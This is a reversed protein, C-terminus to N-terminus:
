KASSVRKGRPKSRVYTILAPGPGNKCQAAVNGRAWLNVKDELHFEPFRLDMAELNEWTAEWVPTDKWKILVETSSTDTQNQKRVELLSEPEATFVMEPSIQPPIEASVPSDGIAKKLQSIHFVNHIKATPPLNLRYAVEGVRSHITFPGYYRPSLKENMRGALSLQRYPQLRLFVQEGEQFELNRRHGDAYLRM